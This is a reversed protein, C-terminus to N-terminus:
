RAREHRGMAHEPRRAAAEDRRELRVAALVDVRPGHEHAVVVGGNETGRDEQRIMRPDRRLAAAVEEVAGLDFLGQQEVDMREAVALALRDDSCSPGTRSISSRALAVVPSSIM